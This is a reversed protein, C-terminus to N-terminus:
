ELSDGVFGCSVVAILEAIDDPMACPRPSLTTASPTSDTPALVSESPCLPQSTQLPEQEAARKVAV